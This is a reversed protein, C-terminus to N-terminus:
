CIRSGLKDTEEETVVLRYLKGVLVVTEVKCDNIQIKTEIDIRRFLLVLGESLM